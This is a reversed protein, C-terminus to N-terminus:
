TNNTREYRQTEKPIALEDAIIQRLATEQELTLMGYIVASVPSFAGDEGAACTVEATCVAGLEAAKDQIYAAIQEEIIIKMLRKNENELASSYDEAQIQYDTLVGPLVGFDAGALPKLIAALMLLGGALKGIRKVAGEPSLSDALAAILAAATVGILWNRILEM